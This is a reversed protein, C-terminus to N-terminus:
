PPTLAEKRYRAKDESSLEPHARNLHNSLAPRTNAPQKTCGPVRCTPLYTAPIHARSRHDKLEKPTTFEAGCKGCKAGGSRATHVYAVHKELEDETACAKTCGTYTCAFVNQEVKEKSFSCGRGTTLHVEVHSPSLYMKDCGANPCAYKYLVAGEGASGDYTGKAWSEAATTKNLMRQNITSLRHCLIGPDEGVQDAEGRAQSAVEDVWDTVEEGFRGLAGDGVEEGEGAEVGGKAPQEGKKVPSPIKALGPLPPAERRM